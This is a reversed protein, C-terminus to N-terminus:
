QDTADDPQEIAADEDWEYIATIVCRGGSRPRGTFVNDGRRLCSSGPIGPTAFANFAQEPDCTGALEVQYWDNQGAEILLGDDGLPKWGDISSRPCIRNVQDGQRSAIEAELQAREAERTAEQEPSTACAASFSLLLASSAFNIAKINM